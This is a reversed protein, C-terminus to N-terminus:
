KVEKKGGNGTLEKLRDELVNKESTLATVRDTLEKIRLEADKRFADQTQRLQALEATTAALKQDLQAKAKQLPELQATTAQATDRAAKLEKQCKSLNTQLEDRETSLKALKGELESTRKNMGDLNKRVESLENLLKEKEAGGPNGPEQSPRAAQQALELKKMLLDVAAAQDAYRARLEELAKRTEALENALALERAQPKLGEQTRALTDRTQDLEGRLYIVGAALGGLLAILVFATAIQAKGLKGTV